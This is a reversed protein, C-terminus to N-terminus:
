IQANYKQNYHMRSVEDAIDKQKREMDQLASQMQATEYHIADMADVAEQIRREQRLMYLHQEYLNLAEKLSDARGDTACDLIFNIAQPNRYKQPFYAIIHTCKRETADAEAQLKEINKDYNALIKPLNTIDRQIRELERKASTQEAHYKKPTKSCFLFVGLEMYSWYGAGPIALIGAIALIVRLTKPIWDVPIFPLISLRLDPMIVCLLFLAILLALIGSLLPKFTAVFWSTNATRQLAPIKKQNAHTNSEHTNKKRTEEWVALKTKEVLLFANAATAVESAFQHNMQNVEKFIFFHAARLWASLFTLEMGRRLSGYVNGACLLILM